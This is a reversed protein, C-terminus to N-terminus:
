KIEYKIKIFDLASKIRNIIQARKNEDIKEDPHDDWNKVSNSTYIVMRFPESVYEIEISLIRQDNETYTLSHHGYKVIFGDTSKVVSNTVRTLM